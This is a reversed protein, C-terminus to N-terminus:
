DHQDLRWELNAIDSELYEIKSQLADKDQIAHGRATCVVDRFTIFATIQEDTWGQTDYVVTLYRAM